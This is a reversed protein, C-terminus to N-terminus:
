CGFAVRERLISKNGKCLKLAEEGNFNYTNSLLEVKEMKKMKVESM